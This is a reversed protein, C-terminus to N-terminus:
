VDDENDENIQELSDEIEENKQGRQTANHTISKLSDMRFMDARSAVSYNCRAIM